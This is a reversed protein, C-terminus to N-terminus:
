AAVDWGKLGHRLPRSGFSHRGFGGLARRTAPGPVGDVAIRARHQLVRVAKATLPGRIGDIPGKYLGHARLGVQLAAVAASDTGRASAPLVLAVVVLLLGSRKASCSSKQQTGPALRPPRRRCLRCRRRNRLGAPAHQLLAKD